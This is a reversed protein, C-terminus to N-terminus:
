DLKDVEDNAIPGFERQLEKPLLIGFESEVPLYAGKGSQHQSSDSRYEPRYGDSRYDPLACGLAPSGPKKGM